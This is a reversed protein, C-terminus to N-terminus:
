EIVPGDRRESTDETDEIEREKCLFAEVDEAKIWAGTKNGDWHIDVTLGADRCRKWQEPGSM